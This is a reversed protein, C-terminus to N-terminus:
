PLELFSFGYFFIISYFISTWVHNQCTFNKKSGEQNLRNRLEPKRKITLYGRNPHTMFFNMFLFNYSTSSIYYTIKKSPAFPWFIGLITIKWNQGKSAVSHGQALHPLCASPQYPNPDIWHHWLFGGYWRCGEVLSCLWIM